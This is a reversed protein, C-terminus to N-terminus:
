KRKKPIFITQGKSRMRPKEPRKAPPISIPEEPEQRKTGRCQSASATDVTALKDHAPLESINRSTTAIEKPSLHNGTVEQVPTKASTAADTLPFLLPVKQRFTDKSYFTSDIQM